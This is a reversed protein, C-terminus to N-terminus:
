HQPNPTEVVVTVECALGGLSVFVNQYRISYFSYVGFFCRPSPSSSGGERESNILLLLRQLNARKVVARARMWSDSSRSRCPWSRLWTRCGAFVIHRALRISSYFVPLCTRCRFVLLSSFFFLLFFFTLFPRLLCFRLSDCRLCCAALLPRSDPFPQPWFQATVAFICALAMIALKANNLTHDEDYGM